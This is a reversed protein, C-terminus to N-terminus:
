QILESVFVLSIGQEQITDYMEKLAELTAKRPHAIVIGKGEKKVQEIVKEIGQKCNNVGPESDLFAKNWGSPIGVEQAIKYARSKPTTRSDVFYLGTPKLSLLVWRMVQENETVRSGMHNNVGKIHSFKRIQGIVTDYVEKQDMSIYIAGEGPDHVYCDKPEMPLHLMVEYECEHALRESERSYPLDPLISLTLPFGLSLFEKTMTLDEGIDDIIIALRPPRSRLNLSHTLVGNLWVSLCGQGEGTKDWQVSLNELGSLGEELAKAAADPDVERPLVIEAKTYLWQVKGKQLLREELITFDREPVGLNKGTSSLLQNIQRCSPTYDIIGPTIKPTKRSVPKEQEREQDSIPLIVYFAYVCLGIVILFFIIVGTLNIPPGNRRKRAPM